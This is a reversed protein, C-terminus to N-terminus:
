RRHLATAAGYSMCDDYNLATPHRSKGFIRWVAHAHERMTPKFEVEENALVNPLGAVPRAPANLARQVFRNSSRVGLARRHAAAFRVATERHARHRDVRLHRGRVVCFGDRTYAMSATDGRTRTAQQRAQQPEVQLLKRLPARLKVLMPELDATVTLNDSADARQSRVAALPAIIHRNASRHHARAEERLWQHLDLPQNRILLMPMHRNGNM